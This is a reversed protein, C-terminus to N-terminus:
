LIEIKSFGDGIKKVLVQSYIREKLLQVHSIVGISKGRSQLSNLASLVIELSDEDLTGFGEDLFISNIEINESSFDSLALALSLSVLFTEGGSLTYIEREHNGYFKDIISLNLKETRKLRYRDSIKSLHDNALIVLMQLTKEQAIKQYKAGGSSGIEGNLIELDHLEIKINELKKKSTEYTKRNESNRKLIGQLEGKQLIFDNHLKKNESFQTQLSELNPFASIQNSLESIENEMNRYNEREIKLDHNLHSIQSELNQLTQSNVSIQNKFKIQTQENESIEQRIKKLDAIGSVRYKEFKANIFNLGNEYREKLISYKEADKKEKLLNKEEKQINEFFQIRSKKEVLLKAVEDSNLNKFSNLDLEASVQTKQNELIAVKQSIQNLDKELNSKDKKYRKWVRETEDINPKESFLPHETAGCVPCPEGDVLNAREEEYSLILKEQERKQSLQEFIESTECFRKELELNQPKLVGLDSDIKEKQSSFKQFSELESIEKQYVSLNEIELINEIQSLRNEIENLSKSIQLNAFSKKEKEVDKVRNVIESFDDKLESRFSNERFFNELKELESNLNTNSNQLEVIRNETQELNKRKSTGLEHIQKLNQSKANKETELKQIQSIQESLNELDLNSIETELLQLKEAIETESVPKYNEIINQLLEKERQMAKTKEYVKQSIERYIQSDTLKELVEAKEAENTKLFSDFSGQALLVSRIFQNFQLGILDFIYNKVKTLGSELIVGDSSIEMHPNKITGTKTKTISFKSVYIKGAIEFHLESFLEEAGKTMLVDKSQKGGIRPTEGYLALSIADLITTKGSGTVGTILFIGDEFKTFDIKHNGYLSNINKLHLKLIKM